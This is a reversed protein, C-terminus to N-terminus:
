WNHGVPTYGPGEKGELIENAYRVISKQNMPFGRTASELIFEVLVKEEAVSLKQKTANFESVGRGG